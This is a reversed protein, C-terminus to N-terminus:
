GPLDVKPHDRLFRYLVVAGIAVGIIGGVIMAVASNAVLVWTIGADLIFAYLYFRAFDNMYGMVAVPLAFILGPVLLAARGSVGPIGLHMLAIHGVQLAVFGLLIYAMIRLRRQRPAGPKMAGVRPRTLWRKGLVNILSCLFLAGTFPIIDRVSSDPSQRSWNIFVGALAFMAGAQIDVLGDRFQSQFVQREHSRMDPTGALWDM